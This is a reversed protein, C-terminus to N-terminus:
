KSQAFSFVVGGLFNFGYVPYQNWRQYESNLMNNFQAWLKINPVIKFELGASLDMASGLNGRGGDKKLYQPGNFTYMDTTLYLDKVVQLRLATKFEVPLLGWAKEAQRTKYQNFQINSILSFTEGITYGLEGGFNFVKLEPENIVVFSRGGRSTDNTFLPQNTIKNYAIKASYSLHDGASGKFGAYREDISSNYVMAPAWIWPNINAMYQFGSNRLYGVWGAQFSFRKDTSAIEATVNPFLHSAGKDWAPRIGARLNVLSSRYLLSPSIAIYNNNVEAKKEPKYRSLSATVALDVAFTKGLEKEVPLNLYTNSESNSLGDSFADIRLEPAYSLGLDTRNINHFSIRGRWTQYRVDLSDKPLTSPFATIGYKKTKEQLAGLRADWQINGSKLFSNLEVNTHAYDQNPLKGSSSTHRGYLNVGTNKGDGVSLGAAAYPTKLNGFGLKVFSENTWRSGTDAQLALPRLTGPQYAFNLNQNPINYQLRPRGTDTSPPAANFNVKAADKLVPKFSSTIKVKKGTSDQAKAGVSILVIGITFISLKM